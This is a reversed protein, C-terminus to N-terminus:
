PRNGGSKTGSRIKEICFSRGTKVLYITQETAASFKIIQPWIRILKEAQKYFNANNFNDDFAFFTLGSDILAAREHPTSIIATNGSIVKWDVRDNGLVTLWEVDPTSNGYANNNHSFRADKTIHTVDHSGDELAAVMNAYRWSIDADFFFNM